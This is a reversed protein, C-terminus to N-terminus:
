AEMRLKAEIGQPWTVPEGHVRYMGPLVATVEVRDTSSLKGAHKLPLLLTGEGRVTDSLDTDVEDSKPAFLCDDLEETGGKVPDGSSDTTDRHVKVTQYWEQPFAEFHSM